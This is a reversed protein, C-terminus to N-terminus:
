LSAALIGEIETDTLVVPNTRMSSGRSEAILAPFADPSVGLTGLRPV